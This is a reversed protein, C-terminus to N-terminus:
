ITPAALTRYCGPVVDGDEDRIQEVLAMDLPDPIVGRYYEDLFEEELDDEVIDVFVRALFEEYEKEDM